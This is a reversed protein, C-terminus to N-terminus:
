AEIRFLSQRSKQYLKPLLSKIRDHIIRSFNKNVFNSPSIPRDSFTNVLLKKPLMVLNTYIIFRPLEYGYFCILVM